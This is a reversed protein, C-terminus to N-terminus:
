RAREGLRKLVTNLATNDAHQQIFPEVPLWWGTFGATGPEGAGGASSPAADITQSLLAAAEEPRGMAGAAIARTLPDAITDVDFPTGEAAAIGAEALPHGPYHTLAARFSRAAEARRGTRLLAAGHGVHAHMTYERGYLRHPAALARERDFEDIAERTDDHALRVLGLLWHLGLAPYREGRGIQRDQVAAGHRLVREAETLHGRAVHVM